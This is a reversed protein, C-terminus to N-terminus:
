EKLLTTVLVLAEEKTTITEELQADEVARLLEKFMPGPTLGLAILDDGTILRDPNIAKTESEKGLEAGFEALKAKCYDYMEYDAHSSMCDLKHLELQLDFRPLRMLRKLTSKNMEKANRFKMHSKVMSLIVDKKENSFNLRNLVEGALKESEYEHGYAVIHGNENVKSTTAKGTDHLLCAWALEEEANDKMNNLLQLTHVYATGEPHWKPNQEVGRLAAVEPLIPELLGFVNLDSVASMRRPGTIIKTLEDRIREASIEDIKYAWEIISYMTPKDITFGLRAAFRVARLMRLRDEAFRQDPNGISRILKKAIDERGGVFDILKNTLPDFFMGNITFDRRKADEEASSFTVSTPHRGDEYKEDKRFTAVEFQDEGDVVIVVGFAVGVPITKEFLARVQDPTAATAIDYDHPAIGLVLDRVCGGAFYSEYGAGVLTKIIKTAKEKLM